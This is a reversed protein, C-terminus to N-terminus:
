DREVEQRSSQVKAAHRCPKDMWVPKEKFKYPNNLNPVILPNIDCKWSTSKRQLSPDDTIGKRKTLSTGMKTMQVTKEQMEQQGRELEEM